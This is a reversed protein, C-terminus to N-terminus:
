AIDLSSSSEPSSAPIPGLSSCISAAVRFFALLLTCRTARWQSLSRGVRRLGDRWVMLVVGRKKLMGAAAVAQMRHLTGFHVARSVAHCDATCAVNITESPPPLHLPTVGRFLHWYCM